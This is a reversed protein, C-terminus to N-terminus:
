KLKYIVLVGNSEDNIHNITTPMKIVSKDIRSKSYQIFDEANYACVFTNDSQSEVINIPFFPFGIDDSQKWGNLTYRGTQEKLNWVISGSVRNLILYDESAYIGRLGNIYKKEKAQQLATEYEEDPAFEPLSVEMNLVAFSTVMGDAYSVSYITDNLPLMALAKEKDYEALSPYGFQYSTWTSVKFKQPLIEKFYSTLPNCEAIGYTQDGFFVDSSFLFNSSGPITLITNASQLPEFEDVSSSYLFEGSRVNYLHVNANYGDFAFLTDNRLVINSIANYEGPGEGISGLQRVFKGNRDFQWVAADNSDSSYAARVFIDSDTSLTQLIDAFLSEESTELAVISVNDYLDDFQWSEVKTLKSIDIDVVGEVQYESITCGVMLLSSIALLSHSLHKM